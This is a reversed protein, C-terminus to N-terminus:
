LYQRWYNPNAFFCNKENQTKKMFFVSNKEYFVNKEYWFQKKGLQGFDLFIFFIKIHVCLNKWRRLEIFGNELPQSICNSINQHTTQFTQAKQGKFLLFIFIDLTFLSHKPCTKITTKVISCVDNQVNNKQVDNQVDNQLSCVDNTTTGYLWSM